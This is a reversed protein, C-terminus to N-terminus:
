SAMWSQDSRMGGTRPIERQIIKAPAPAIHQLRNAAQSWADPQDDNKGMPFSACEAIFDKVWPAMLPHPLYWNGGELKPAAAAARSVKGGEPNVEVFGGIEHQLSQVVAPGNAKDEVLKVVAAPVRFSLRRVADLTGPLDMRGREMDLVFRDAEKAAVALGVVFDSTEKAKFAMDWSQIVEDFTKPLSFPKIKEVEGDPKTVEVPPLNAGEPQWYKWWHSKLMGGGAPLPSQQHQGAFGNAGLDKKAQEIVKASFLAPFLLEGAETRKDAVGLCTTSARAPDFESPLCLHQYGGQAIVHGSLDRDSLRQMIIVKVGLDMDNLRSSMTLDWWRTHEELKPESFQDDASLPDDCIVADGRHGTGSGVVLCVRVGKETNEFYSKANQDDSLKWKPKFLDQYWPSAILARCRVSDRITLKEQYSSFLARWKPGGFAGITSDKPTRIWMWAPWFVSVLLSKSHGPPINILLRRIKGDSAAQLHECIAGMHWNDIYRKAPEATDWAERVFRTFSTRCAEAVDEKRKRSQKEKKAIEALRDLATTNM